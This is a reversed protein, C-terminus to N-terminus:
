EHPAELEGLAVTGDLAWCLDHGAVYVEGVADSCTDAVSVQVWHAAEKAVDLGVYVDAFIGQCCDDRVGSWGWWSRELLVEWLAPLSSLM